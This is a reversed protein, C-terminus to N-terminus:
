TTAVFALSNSKNPSERSIACLVGRVDETIKMVTGIPVVRLALSRASQEHFFNVLCSLKGSFKVGFSLKGPPSLFAADETRLLLFIM